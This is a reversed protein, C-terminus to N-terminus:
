PHSPVLFPQCPPARSRPLGLGSSRPGSRLVHVVVPYVLSTMLISSILYARQQTREAIAGSVITASTVAYMFGMLYRAADEGHVLEVAEFPTYSTNVASLDPWGIFPGGSDAALMSGVCFWALAGVCADLLNKLLIERVSQERVTGAELMAFGAQMFFIVIAALLYFTTDIAHRLIELTDHTENRLAALELRLEAAQEMATMM